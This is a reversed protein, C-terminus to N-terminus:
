WIRVVLRCAPDCVSEDDVTVIRGSSAATQNGYDRGAGYVATGNLEEITVNLRDVLGNSTARLGLEDALDAPDSTNYTENFATANLHNPRDPDESLNAVITAAVRDAQTVDGGDIGSTDQTLLTPVTSFVAAIALLFIGIGVAFDQTTQGRDALSITVTNRRRM